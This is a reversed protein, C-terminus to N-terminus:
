RRRARKTSVHKVRKVLYNKDGYSDGLWKDNMIDNTATGSAGIIIGM